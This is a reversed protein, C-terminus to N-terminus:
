SRGREYEDILEDVLSDIWTQSEPSALVTVFAPWTAEAWAGIPPRAETKDLDLVEAVTRAASYQMARDIWGHIDARVEPM